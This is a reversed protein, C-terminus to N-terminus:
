RKCCIEMEEHCCFESYWTDTKTINRM